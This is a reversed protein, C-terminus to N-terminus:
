YSLLLMSKSEDAPEVKDADEHDGDEPLQLEIPAFYASSLSTMKKVSFPGQWRVTFM